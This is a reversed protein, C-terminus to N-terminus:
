DFIRLREWLEILNVIVEFKYRERFSGRIVRLTLSILVHKRINYVLILLFINLKM